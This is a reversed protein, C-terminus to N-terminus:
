EKLFNHFLKQCKAGIEDVVKIPGTRIEAVDMKLCCLFICCLALYLRPPCSKASKKPARFM